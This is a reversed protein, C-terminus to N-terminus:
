LLGGQKVLAVALQEHLTKSDTIRDRLTDCIGMLEKVKAVIRHQEEIPPLPLIIEKLDKLYIAPQATSGSANILLTFASPSKLAIALYDSLVLSTPKILIVSGLLCFKEKINVKCMRGVTAGRSVILLDGFEPNCRMLAKKATAESIYLPDDLIVGDERVDKASLFYIGADTTPPRFHEGDTIKLSFEEPRVWTWSKPIEFLKKNESIPLITREQKTKGKAILKDKELKIRKLLDCAPEDNPNRRTLKGMIASQLVTLKLVDISAETNFLIDFNASIHAWSANFDDADQSQTLADLLTKVLTEHAAEADSQQAEMRDCLAMLEDVRKVIRKQEETPPLGCLTAIIKERSINPQAGGAGQSIFNQKLAKLLVLLFRNFVGQHPTCACVAQNTTGEVALIATKGITAGYMAILVDGVKNERLSCEKLALETIKEESSDIFDSTLEGSKFWPINGGYYNPNSRLPTAGAGWEGIMGLTILAWSEPFTSAMDEDLVIGDFKNKKGKSVKAKQEQVRKLLQNAPEDKPNQPVLKGHVALDLILERLKQMGNPASAVLGFERALLEHQEAQQAQRKAALTSPMAAHAHNPSQQSPPVTHIAAQKRVAQSM